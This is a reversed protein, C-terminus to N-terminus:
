ERVSVIKRGTDVPGYNKVDQIIEVSLHEHVSMWSSLLMDELVAKTIDIESSIVLSVGGLFPKLITKFGHLVWHQWNFFVAGMQSLFVGYSLVNLRWAKTKILLQNRERYWHNKVQPYNGGFPYNPM